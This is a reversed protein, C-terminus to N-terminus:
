VLPLNETPQKSLKEGLSEDFSAVDELDVGLWYHGLNYHRKLEDSCFSFIYVHVIFKISLFHVM